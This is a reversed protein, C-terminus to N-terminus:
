KVCFKKIQMAIQRIFPVHILIFVAFLSVYNLLDLMGAEDKAM